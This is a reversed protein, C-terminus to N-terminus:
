CVINTQTGSWGEDRVIKLFNGGGTQLSRQYAAQLHKEIADALYPNRIFIAGDWRFDIDGANWGMSGEPTPYGGEHPGGISITVSHKTKDVPDVMNKAAVSIREKWTHMHMPRRPEMVESGDGVDNPDRKAM